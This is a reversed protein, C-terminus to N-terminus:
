PIFGLGEEFGFEAMKKRDKLTEVGQAVLGESSKREGILVEYYVEYGAPDNLVQLAHAAALVVSPQKDSLAQKLAPISANSGMLGLATAAAAKVAPKQDQLARQAMELAEPDGPLLRLARVAQMRKGANKEIVGARLINRAQQQSTQALLAGTYAVLVLLVAASKPRSPLSILGTMNRRGRRQVAPSANRNM